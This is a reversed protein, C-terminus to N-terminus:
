HPFLGSFITETERRSRSRVINIQPIAALIGEIHPREKRLLMNKLFRPDWKEQCGEPMEPRKKGKHEWWRRLGGYAATWGPYDLYLITDAQLLIDKSYTDIWGEIIWSETATIKSLTACINERTTEIWDRSWIISDM